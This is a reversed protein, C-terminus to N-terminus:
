TPALCSSFQTELLGGESYLISQPPGLALPSAPLDALLSNNTYNLDSILTAQNSLYLHIFYLIQSTKLTIDLQSAAPNSAPPSPLFFLIFFVM